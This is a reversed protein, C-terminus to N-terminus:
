FFRVIFFNVNENLKMQLEDDNNILISNQNNNDFNKLEKM